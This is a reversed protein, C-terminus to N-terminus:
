PQSVSHQVEDNDQETTSQYYQWWVYCSAVHCADNNQYQLSQNHFSQLMSEKLQTNDCWLISSALKDPTSCENYAVVFYACKLTNVLTLHAQNQKFFSPAEDVLLLALRATLNISLADKTTLQSMLKYQPQIFDIIIAQIRQFQTLQDESAQLLDDLDLQGNKVLHYHCKVQERMQSSMSRVQGVSLDHDIMLSQIIPNTLITQEQAPLIRATQISLSGHSFLPELDEFRELESVTYQSMDDVSIWGESFLVYGAELKKIENPTLTYTKELDLKHSKVLESVLPNELHKFAHQPVCRALLLARDLSLFDPDILDHICGLKRVQDDPLESLQDVRIKEGFVLMFANRIKHRQEYTLLRARESSLKQNNVLAQVLPDLQYHPASEMASSKEGGM